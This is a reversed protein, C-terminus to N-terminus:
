GLRRRRCAETLDAKKFLRGAWLTAGDTVHWLDEQANEFDGLKCQCFARHLYCAETYYSNGIDDSIRICKSINFIADRYLELKIYIISVDFLNAPEDPDINLALIMATLADSHDKNITHVYALSAWSRSVLPFRTVLDKALALAVDPQHRALKTVREDQEDDYDAM